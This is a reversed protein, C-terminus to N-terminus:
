SLQLNFVNWISDTITWEVTFDSATLNNIDWQQFELSNMRKEYYIIIM